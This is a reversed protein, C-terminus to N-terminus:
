GHKSAIKPAIIVNYKWHFHITEVKRLSSQLKIQWHFASQSLGTEFSEISHEIVKVIM